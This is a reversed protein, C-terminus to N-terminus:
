KGLYTVGNLVIQNLVNSTASYGLIRIYNDGIRLSAICSFDGQNGQSMPTTVVISAAYDPVFGTPLSVGMSQNIDDDTINDIFGDFFVIKGVKRVKFNHWTGRTATSTDVTIWGSDTLEDDVFHVFSATGPKVGFNNNIFMISEFDTNTPSFAVCAVGANLMTNNLLTVRKVKTLYIQRYCGYFHCDIVSINEILALSGSTITIASKNGAETIDTNEFFCNIFSYSGGSNAINMARQNGEFSCSVFKSEGSQQYFASHVAEGFRCGDYNNNFGGIMYVNYYGSEFKCDNFHANLLAGATPSNLNRGFYRVCVRELYLNTVNRNNTGKSINIGISTTDGSVYETAKNVSLDHITLTGYYLNTIEVAKTDGYYKLISIFMGDGYIIRGEVINITDTIKYSGKPLYIEKWAYKGLAYNIVNTDDHNDDGYAGIQKVNIASFVQLNAYLSDIAIVDMENATGSDTIKYLAGGGDNVTHFGLTQAYSGAVLNTALKMDSVTDFTWAVNSQIYTTIIEQLTGDEAMADLKNNIEQQVDLNDFYDHVYNYLTTFLGQLEEVAEANNNVTPIIITELWNVFWALAEYYTMSEVFSTPLEGITMVLKKFPSTDVTDITKLNLESM